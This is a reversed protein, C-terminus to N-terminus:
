VESSLDEVFEFSPPFAQDISRGQWDYQSFTDWIRESQEQVQEMLENQDVGVVQGDEVVTRGDIIVMEVDNGVASNILSRIPDWVGGTRPKTLDIILIDAKAGTSLRGLDDRGIAKAGGLTASNFIDRASGVTFDKEVIKCILSALRMESILDQPYSDTGMAMNVGAKLYRDYSELAMGRRAFVLPSHAVTCGSEALLELDRGGSYVTSSHGSIFLCHGLIVDLGLLENNSLYEVPTAGYTDVMDYFELLSESVHISIGVGLENAARRTERLLKPTCTAAELPFLMGKIRGDYAGDYRGIFDRAKKLGALAAEEDWYRAVRYDSDYYWHGASYGPSLYARIGLEGCSEAFKDIGGVGGLEGGIEVITTCGSTLFNVLSYVGAVDPRELDLLSFRDVKGKVPVYNLFGSNLLDSRGADSILKEAATSSAHVHANIFGPTILKGKAEITRDVPHPYSRGVFVVRDGEFVVQGDRLIKHERGDYGVVYGGNILTKM